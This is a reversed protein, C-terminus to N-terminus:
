RLRSIINDDLLGLGKAYVGAEKAMEVLAKKLGRKPFSHEPLHVRVHTGDKLVGYCYSVDLYPYAWGDSDGLLRLRAIRDLRPDNLQVEDQITEHTVESTWLPNEENVGYRVALDMSRNMDSLLRDTHNNNM